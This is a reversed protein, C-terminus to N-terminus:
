VSLITAQVAGTVADAVTLAGSYSYVYRSDVAPTWASQQALGDFFLQTGGFAFRYLGGYTGAGLRNEEQWARCGRCTTVRHRNKQLKTDRQYLERLFICSKQDSLGVSQFGALQILLKQATGSRRTDASLYRAAWPSLNLPLNGPTFYFCAL